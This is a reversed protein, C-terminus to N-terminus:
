CQSGAECQGSVFINILYHLVLSSYSVSELNAIRARYEARDEDARARDEDARARDADSKARDADAKARDADAKARDEDRGQQM